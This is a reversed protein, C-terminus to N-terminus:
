FNLFFLTILSGGLKLVGDQLSQMRCHMNHRCSHVRESFVPFGDPTKFAKRDIIMMNFMAM